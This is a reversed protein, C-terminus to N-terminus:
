YRSRLGAAHPLGDKNVPTISDEGVEHPIDHVGHPRVSPTLM